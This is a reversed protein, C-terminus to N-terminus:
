YIGNCACSMNFLQNSWYHMGLPIIVVFLAMIIGLIICFLISLRKKIITILVCIISAVNLVIFAATRLLYIDTSYKGNYCICVDYSNYKMYLGCWLMIILIIIVILIKKVIEANM